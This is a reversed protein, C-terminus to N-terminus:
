DDDDERCRHAGHHRHKAPRQTAHEQGDESVRITYEIDADLASNLEQGGVLSARHRGGERCAPGLRTVWLEKGDAESLAWVVEDDGRNSMGFIRGAAISPASYGGGLKDIKWALPPGDNPWEKLLGTEASKGDRNQGRWQPWDVAFSNVSMIMVIATILMVQTKM